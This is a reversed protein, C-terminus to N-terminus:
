RFDNPWELKWLGNESIFYYDRVEDNISSEAYIYVVHDANGVTAKGYNLDLSSADDCMEVFGGEYIHNIIDVSHSTWLQKAEDYKKQESLSLFKALVDRPYDGHKDRPFSAQCANLLLVLLLLLHRM